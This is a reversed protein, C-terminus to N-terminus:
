VCTNEVLKKTHYTGGDKYLVACDKSDNLTVTLNSDNRFKVEWPGSGSEEAVVISDADLCGVVTPGNGGGQTVDYDQEDPTDNAVPM